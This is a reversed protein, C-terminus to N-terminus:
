QLLVVEISGEMIKTIAAQLDNVMSADPGTVIQYAPLPTSASSQTNGHFQMNQLTTLAASQAPNSADFVPGFGITYLRFPNRASSYDAKMQDIISYVQSTVTPDNDAYGNCSPFESRSLNSSDYRVAYYKVSGSSNLSADATQNPAGDTCLIVIKQTGKRGEGGAVGEPVSASPSIWRRLATDTTSTYQFQNYALMLGMSYCTGGYARPVDINGADYPSILSNNNTGDANLTELPFFLANIMLPYNKGLPVRVSNFRGNGDSSSTRPVSFTVLSMYDNPHNLSANQLAAQIALKCAYIPAEHCDGPWFFRNRNYNGMFDVMTMPGFWFRTRPRRPNDAYKMYKTTPPASIQVTGWTFDDGYGVQTNVTSWSSSGTQELGLCHDIYEKWFRQDANSPPFTSTSISTPIASYYQIHGSHLRPPFPNPGSSKIWALIANYNITYGGATPTQFNGSTDFLKTNDNTGFFRQRWDCIYNGYVDKQPDTTSLKTPDPAQSGGGWRPDPPWVFFTKGWYRPGQTYGKFTGGTYYNYGGTASNTEFADVKTLSGNNVDAITKAYAQSPTNNVHLFKDGGACNDSDLSSDAPPNPGSSNVTNNFAPVDPNTYPVHQYFDLVVPPRNDDYNNAETVNAPTYQNNGIVVPSTNQLGATSVASYHGFKPYVSEPNNSGSGTGTGNNRTGWYPIGTLSGFRMSGSFDLVLAVDRPRHAATATATTAFSSIGLVRAFFTGSNPVTITVKCLSYPDSSGKPIKISYTGNAPDYSYAGFNVVVNATDNGNLASGLVMNAGVARRAMIGANTLNNNNTADGSLARAGALAAADAANQCQTKAVAAMGLDIALALFGMLAVLLIALMPLITARRAPRRGSPSSRSPM